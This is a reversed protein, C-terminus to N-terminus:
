LDKDTRIDQSEEILKESPRHAPLNQQAVALSPPPYPGTAPQRAGVWSEEGKPSSRLPRLSLSM